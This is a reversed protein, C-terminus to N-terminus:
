RNEDIARYAKADELSSARRPGLQQRYDAMSPNWKDMRDRGLLPEHKWLRRNDSVRCTCVKTAPLEKQERADLPQRLSAVSAGIETYISTYM